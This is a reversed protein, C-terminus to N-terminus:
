DLNDILLAENFVNNILTLFLVPYTLCMDYVNIEEKQNINKIPYLRSYAQNFVKAM